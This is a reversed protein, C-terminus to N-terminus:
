LSYSERKFSCIITCHRSSRCFSRLPIRVSQCKLNWTVISRKRILTKRIEIAFVKPQDRLSLIQYDSMDTGLVATKMFSGKGNTLILDIMTPNQSIFCRPENILNKLNFIETFYNLFKNKGPNM